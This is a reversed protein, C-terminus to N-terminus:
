ATADDLQLEIPSALASALLASREAALALELSAQTRTRARIVLTEGQWSCDIAMVRQTKSRELYEALRLMGALWQVRRMDDPELLRELGLPQPTGKRHYRVLLAILAQERHSFGPIAAAMVLYFGHKHHDFYNVAMGIDHLYCAAELLERELLGFGHRDQLGDFLALALKAVHRNHAEFPYYHQMLNMVHFRRVNDTVGAEGFLRSYLLGERIGQGSIWLRSQGQLRVLERLVLAGAHIIDARDRSLGGLKRREATPLALLRECLAELAEAELAYGHILDVPYSKERQVVSALNRATGGMAVLPAEYRPLESLQARVAKILATVERKKPPDRRLFRQQSRLAGLPWSRSLIVQRQSIRSLQLSGGGLDVATAENFPFSNAVALAGYRGEVEGSLVHFRIGSAAEIEELLAPGNEADRVASTAVAAIEDVGTARCYDGFLTVAALARAAASANLRGGTLGELLRVVQRLEDLLRYYRGPLYEYLVLRATNSGLDIIALRKLAASNM